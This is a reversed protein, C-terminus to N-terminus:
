RRAQKTIGLSALIALQRQSFGGFDVDFGYPSAAIRRKRTTKFSQTFYHPGPSSDFSWPGSVFTNEVSITEMMYGYPMVLGDKSFNNVNASLTGLDAVWDAAWSWPTLNWLTNIDPLGGYLKEWRSLDRAFPFPPVYYQFMGVFWQRKETRTVRKLNGSPANEISPQLQPALGGTSTGYTTTVEVPFDYRRRLRKGSQRVYENWIAEANQFAEVAKRIDNIFPKVGFEYNLHENAGQQLKGARRGSNALGIMSPLGETIIEGVTTNLDVQSSTPALRKIAERGLARLGSNSTSIVTPFSENTISGNNVAGQARRRGIAHTGPRSKDTNTLVPPKLTSGEKYERKIVDFDRGIAKSSKKGKQFTDRYYSGNSYSEILDDSYADSVEKVVPPALPFPNSIYHWSQTSYRNFGKWNRRIM